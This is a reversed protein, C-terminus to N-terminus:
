AQELFRLVGLGDVRPMMLDLLVTAYDGGSLKEIAEFGDRATEVEFKERRLVREVMMRIADDDDVVLIKKRAQQVLQVETTVAFGLLHVAMARARRSAPTILLNGTTLQRNDPAVACGRRTPKMGPPNHPPEGVVSLRCSVVAASRPMISPTRISVIVSMAAVCTNRREPSTTQLCTPASDIRTGIRCLTPLRSKTYVNDGTAARM